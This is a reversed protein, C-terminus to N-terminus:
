AAEPEESPTSPATDIRRGTADYMEFRSEREEAMLREMERRGAEEAAARAKRAEALVALNAGRELAVREKEASSTEQEVEHLVPSVRQSAEALEFLIRQEHQAQDSVHGFMSQGMELRHRQSEAHHDLGHYFDRLKGLGKERLGSVDESDRRLQAVTEDSWDRGIPNAVSALYPNSQEELADPAVFVVRGKEWVVFYQGM